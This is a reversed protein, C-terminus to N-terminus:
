QDTASLVFKVGGVERAVEVAKNIDARSSVFGTLFSMRSLHGNVKEGAHECEWPPPVYARGQQESVDGDDGHGNEQVTTLRVM